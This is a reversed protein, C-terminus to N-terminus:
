RGGVIHDAIVQEAQALFADSFWLFPRAPIRSGRGVRAGDQQAGSWKVKSEGVLGDGGLQFVKVTRNPLSGLLRSARFQRKTKNSFKAKTKAAKMAKRRGRRMQRAREITKASNRPWKGEPGAQKRAHDTQDDRMPRRLSAWAPRLKKAADQMNGFSREVDSVDLRASMAPGAAM